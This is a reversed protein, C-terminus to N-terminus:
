IWMHPLLLTWHVLSINVKCMYQHTRQATTNCLSPNWVLGAQPIRSPPRAGELMLRGMPWAPITTICSHPHQSSQSLAGGGVGPHHVQAQGPGPDGHLGWSGRTCKAKNSDHNKFPWSRGPGSQLLLWARGLPRTRSLSEQGEEERGNNDWM